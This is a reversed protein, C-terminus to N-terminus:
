KTRKLLQLLINNGDGNSFDPSARYFQKSLMSSLIVGADGGGEKELRALIKKEELISMEDM